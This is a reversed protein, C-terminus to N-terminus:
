KLISIDMWGYAQEPYNVGKITISGDAIKVGGIKEYFRTAPNETLVWVAMSNLQLSRLHSVVAKVLLFGGGKGWVEPLLYLSYLEGKFLQTGSDSDRNKGGNAFGVIRGQIEAVFIGHNNQQLGKAWRDARENVSLSALFDEPLINRYAVQWSKVHVQAIQNEDGPKGTRIDM